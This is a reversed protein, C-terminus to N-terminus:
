SVQEDVFKLFERYLMKTLFGPKGDGIVQNDAQHVPLLEIGTNTLFVEDASYVDQPTLIQERCPIGRKRAIELVVHRTVGPLVYENVQPTILVNDRVMFINSTTGDTIRNNEDLLIAEQCNNASAMERLLIHSLYNGSKVQVRLNAIKSASSSILSINVGDQYMYEPLRELPRTHVVMTPPTNPDIRLGSASEGRTLTLRVIANSVKNIKLTERVIVGMERRTLPLDLYILPASQYLRDLHLDLRFVKGKYARMTEFLGDGYCFGRDFISVRANESAVFFGNLFVLSRM